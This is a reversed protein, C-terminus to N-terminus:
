RQTSDFLGKDRQRDGQKGTQRCTLGSKLRHITKEPHRDEHINTVGTQTDVKGARGDKWRGRGTKLSSRTWRGAKIEGGGTQRQAVQGSRQRQDKESRSQNASRGKPQNSKGVASCSPCVCMFM